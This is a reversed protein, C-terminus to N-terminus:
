YRSEISLVEPTDTKELGLTYKTTHIVILGGLEYGLFM